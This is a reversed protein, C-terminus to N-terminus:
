AAIFAGLTRGRGSPLPRRSGLQENTAAPGAPQALAKSVAESLKLGLVELYSGDQVLPVPPLNNPAPTPSARRFGSLSLKSLPRSRELAQASDLKNPLTAPAPAPSSPRSSPKFFSPTKIAAYM